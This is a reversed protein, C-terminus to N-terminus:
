SNVFMKNENLIKRIIKAIKNSYLEINVYDNNLLAVSLAANYEIIMILYENYTFKAM